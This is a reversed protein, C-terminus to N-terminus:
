VKNLILEILPLTKILIERGQEKLAPNAELVPILQQGYDYYLKILMRGTESQTLVNDRFRRLIELQQDNGGLLSSAPCDASLTCSGTFDNYVMALLKESGHLKKLYEWVAIRKEICMWNASFDSECIEELLVNSPECIKLPDSRDVSQMQNNEDMYTYTYNCVLDCCCEFEIDQAIATHALLAIFGTAILSLCTRIM